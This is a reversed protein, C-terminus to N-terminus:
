ENGLQSRFYGLAAFVYKRLTGPAINWERALEVYSTGELCSRYLAELGQKRSGKAEELLRRLLRWMRDADLWLGADLWPSFFHRDNKKGLEDQQKPPRRSARTRWDYCHNCGIKWVSRSGREKLLRLVKEKEQFIEKCVEMAVDEADAPPVGKRIAQSRFIRLLQAGAKDAKDPDDGLYQEVLDQIAM